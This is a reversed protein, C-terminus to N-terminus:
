NLGSASVTLEYGPEAFSSGVLCLAGALLLATKM